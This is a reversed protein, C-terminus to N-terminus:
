NRVEQLVIQKTAEPLRTPLLQPNGEWSMILERYYTMVHINLQLKQGTHLEKVGFWAAPFFAEVVMHPLSKEIRQVKGETDLREAARGNAYRWLQPKVEFGDPFAPNPQPVLHIAYQKMKGRKGSPNVLLHIQFTESLPFDGQYALFAPDVYTNALTALYLGEPAWALHVDGFPVYPSPTHFDLLRTREKDWDMLSQDGVKIQGAARPVPFPAATKISHHTTSFTSYRTSPGAGDRHLEELKPNWQRFGETVEEYPRNALDILGMNYDEGDERGGLPEDCYQFWHTGVVNPFRAFNRLANMAGHARQAQTAVTMLHGPKPYKNRATENHNGSRNEEAAFFFETVLVPKDSLRRLGDFYYPAVWGDAVDVNYNTSIVDVADNMALVADQHYYLPLRDGLLLAGPHTQRLARAMLTYYHRCYLHMFRNVLQIGYGGPRLRMKADARKLDEFSTISSEPVWDRLLREWRGQYHDSILQCLMRKTHNEWSKGLYWVFLPSNWWGVENDSFYGLLKPDHRYPATLKEAWELTVREQEPSFPDFWHFKSNRGLELDVTLALDFEPSPDSWGGRTNFGWGLLQAGAARRWEEITSFFNGWYFAQKERSKPSEKGADLFNVGRSYFLQGGPTVLWHVGDKEQTQWGSPPRAPPESFVSPAAAVQPQAGAWVGQPAVPLFAVVLGTMVLILFSLPRSPAYVM